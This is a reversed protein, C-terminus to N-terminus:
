VFESKKGGLSYFFRVIYRNDAKPRFKEYMAMIWYYDILPMSLTIEDFEFAVVRFMIEIEKEYALREAELNKGSRTISSAFNWLKLIGM